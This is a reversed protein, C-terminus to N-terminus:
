FGQGNREGTQERQPTARKMPQHTSATRHIARVTAEHDPAATVSACGATDRLYRIRVCRGEHPIDPLATKTDFLELGEAFIAQITVPETAGTAQAPLHDRNDLIWECERLFAAPRVDQDRTLM